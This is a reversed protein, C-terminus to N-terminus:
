STTTPVSPSAPPLDGALEDAERQYQTRYLNSYAGSQAMLEEHTGRETVHGDVLVLIQDAARITSLRHAIVISTRGDMAAALAEQVLAETESDLHATAEDLVMIAPDKLLVRALAIRQKEGGSFRHGREGVITRYGEPLSSILDHIRAARCATEIDSDSAEPRAYRVNSAVSEHFLHVDQTVVGVISSVTSLTLDRVDHGGLRVVGATTDYLRPILSCLTSKGAGSPGVIATLSGPEATFAIGHLIEASRDPSPPPHGQPLMSAIVVDAPAPYCFSVDAFEVRGSVREADVALAGDTIAVPKDLVEFVRDFAVLGTMITVKAGLLDQFPTYVQGAYTALAIVAGLTIAGDVVALGGFWYVLALGVSGVVALAHLFVRQSVAVAVNNDRIAGAHDMYRATEHQKRGFLKVLLAGSVNLREATLTNLQTVLQLQELNLRQMRRGFRVAVPLFVPLIVLVFLTIKWSLVFMAIGGLLLMSVDYTATWFTGLFLQQAAAVDDNLRSIIAGVPTRAFFALPLDHLHDFLAARMDVIVEGQMQIGFRLAFTDVLPRAVYLAVAALMLSSVEGRDRTPLADDVLRKILLPPVLSIVAMLPASSLYLFFRGRYPRMFTWARRLTASSVHAGEMKARDQRFASQILVM